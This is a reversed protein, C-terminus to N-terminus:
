AAEILFNGGIQEKTEAFPGDSIAPRGQRVRVTSATRASRLPRADVLRGSARLTGVYAITEERLERWEDTSLANLMGEEEYALCLYKMSAGIASRALQSEVSSADRLGLKAAKSTM